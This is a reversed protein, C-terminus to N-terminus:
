LGDYATHVNQPKDKGGGTVLSIRLFANRKEGQFRGAFDQFRQYSARLPLLIVKM